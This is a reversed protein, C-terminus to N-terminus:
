FGEVHSCRLSELKGERAYRERKEVRRSESSILQM